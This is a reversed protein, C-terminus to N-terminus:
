GAYARRNLKGLANRTLPELSAYARAIKYGQFVASRVYLETESIKSEDTVTLTATLKGDRMYVVAEKVGDLTCLEAEIKQPMLKNGDPFVILDDARGLVYLFGDEDLYGLDGTKYEGELREMLNGCTDLYGIMVNSGKIKIEGSPEISISNCNLAVGASGFKNYDDRNVSVCPACESLGYCGYVGIGHEAMKECLSAPTGAGGSLIKKLRSGVVKEKDGVADIRQVLAEVVGPTVNLATPNFTAIGVLFSVVDYTLYVTSCSYLPGLLDCVLGFAHTYPIISVFVGGMAFEYKEMGAVLDSIINEQSLAVAKPTSTTGSSCLVTSVSTNERFVAKGGEGKAIIELVAADDLECVFPFDAFCPLKSASYPQLCAINGSLVTAFYSVTFLYKDKLNLLVYEGGNSFHCMAREIDLCLEFYTHSKGDSVFAVSNGFEKIRCFLEKFNKLQEVRYDPYNSM